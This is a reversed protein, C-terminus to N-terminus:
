KNCVDRLNLKLGDPVSFAMTHHIYNNNLAQLRETDTRLEDDITRFNIALNLLAPRLKSEFESFYNQYLYRKKSWISKTEVFQKIGLIMLSFQFSQDRITYGDHRIM